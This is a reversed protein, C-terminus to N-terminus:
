FHISSIIQSFTPDNFRLQEERNISRSIFKLITNEKNVILTHIFEGRPGELASFARDTFYDVAPYNGIQINQNKTVLSRVDLPEAYQSGDDLKYLKDFEKVDVKESAKLFRVTAAGPTAEKENPDISYFDTSYDGYEKINWEQPYRLIFGYTKNTYTKWGQFPDPTTIPSPSSQLAKKHGPLIGVFLYVLGSILAIVVVILPLATGKKTSTTGPTLQM